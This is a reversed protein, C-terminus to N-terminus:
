RRVRRGRRAVRAAAFTCVLWLAPFVIVNTLTMGRVVVSVLFGILLALSVAWWLFFLAALFAARGIARTVSELGLRAAGPARWPAPLETLALRVDSDRRARLAVELRDAFEEVSLRGRLYHAKLVSVARERERDGILAM